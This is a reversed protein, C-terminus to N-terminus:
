GSPGAPTRTSAPMAHGPHELEEVISTRKLVGGLVVCVVCLGLTVYSAFALARDSIDGDGAPRPPKQFEEQRM